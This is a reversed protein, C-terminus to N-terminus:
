GVPLPAPVTLGAAGIGYETVGALLPRTSAVVIAMGPRDKVFRYLNVTASTQPGVVVTRVLRRNGNRLEFLEARVPHAGTNALAIVESGSRDSGGTVLWQSSADAVPATVAYGVPLSPPLEAPPRFASLALSGSLLISREAVISGRGVVRLWSAEVVPTSPAPLVYQREAGPGLTIMATGAQRGGETTLAVRVTRRTVNVLGFREEVGAGLIAPGFWWSATPVPVGLVLSSRLTPGVPREDLSGVVIRGSVTTVQASLADRQPLYRGAFFVLDQEPEVPMSALASPTVPGKPTAFSVSAVAPTAGPNYISIAMNSFGKTSGLGFYSRTAAHTTCPSAVTGSTGSVSETVGVGTGNVIVSVAGYTPRKTQPLGVIREASPGVTVQETHALAGRATITLQASRATGSLNALAIAAHEGPHGFPLPGPCYWAVSLARESLEVVSTAASGGTRLLAREKKTVSNLFGAGIALACFAAIILRRRLVSVSAENTM